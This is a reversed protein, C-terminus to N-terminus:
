QPDKRSWRKGNKYDKIKQLVLKHEKWIGQYKEIIDFLDEKTIEGENYHRKKVNQSHTIIQCNCPHRLIEPFVGHKFGQYRGLRHDRVVGKTNTKNNFIRKEKLIKLQNSDEILNWMPEIWNSEKAYVDYDDKYELPVWHGRDEMTKRYKSMYELDSMREKSKQGIKKKSEESHRFNKPRNVHWREMFEKSRKKGRNGKGTAYRYNPDKMREKIIKSLHKRQEDNWRNGYNGNLEGPKSLKAKIENAREKGFRLEFPQKQYNHKCQRNCFNTKHILNSPKEINAQCFDCQISVRKYKM